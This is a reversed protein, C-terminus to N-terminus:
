ERGESEDLLTSVRMMGDLMKPFMTRTKRRDVNKLGDVGKLIGDIEMAEHCCTVRGGVRQDSVCM